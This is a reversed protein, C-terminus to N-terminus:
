ELTWGTIRVGLKGEVEILDGQGAIKGNIAIQVPESKERDLEVISGPVIANLQALSMELQGLVVHLRVPLTAFDPKAMVPAGDGGNEESPMLTSRTFYSQIQLRTPQEGTELFRWGRESPGGCGPLLLAPDHVPVIIDGAELGGLDSLSLDAYGLMAFVRWTISKHFQPDLRGPEVRMRDLLPVPLFFRFVGTAGSLGISCEVGMGQEDDPLPEFDVLSFQFPFKLECNARELASLLLLEFLGADSAVLHEVPLRTLRHVVTELFARNVTFPIVGVAPHVKVAFLCLNSRRNTQWTRWTAAAVKPQTLQIAPESNWMEQISVEFHHPFIMFTDDALLPAASNPELKKGNLYTGAASGLDELLYGGHRKLIRAHHRGITAQSLVIDNDPERGIEVRDQEFHYTQLIEAEAQRSQKVHISTGAPARLFSGLGEQLWARWDPANPFCRYFWNLLEVEARSYTELGEFITIIEGGAPVARM